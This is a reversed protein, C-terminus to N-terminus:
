GHAWDPLLERFRALFLAKAEVPLLGKIEAGLPDPLAGWPRECPAMLDRREDVLASFDAKKVSVPEEHSLGFRDCVAVMIAAEMPAWDPLCRKLPRPIDASYAEAADHLLGWLADEKPVFQSVIVSHEAVSYFRTVHGAYRCRMALSHAIDEIFIEEPIPDLPWFCKGIFTQIWDGKRDSEAKAFDYLSM